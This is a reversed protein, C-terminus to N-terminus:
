TDATLNRLPAYIVMVLVQICTSCGSYSVARGLIVMVVTQRVWDYSAEETLDFGALPLLRRADEHTDLVKPQHMVVERVNGMYRHEQYAEEM